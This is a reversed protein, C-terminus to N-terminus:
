GGPQTPAPPPATCYNWNGTDPNRNICVNTPGGNGIGNTHPVNNALFWDTSTINNSSFEARVLGQPVPFQRGASFDHGVGLITKEREATIMMRWWIPAAGTIGSITRMTDSEDKNGVWVGGTYDMTYGMTWDDALNDTTGTKAAAPFVIGPKNSYCASQSGQVFNGQSDYTDSFEHNPNGNWYLYLPSCRGFGFGLRIKDPPPVRAQNDSLVSTLLYAVQPSIVQVGRPPSYRYIENGQGDLIYDIGNFPVRRGYNAMTAYAQVMDIPHVGLSGIAMALGPTGNYNTIGLRQMMRLVNPIGDFDLTKVAPINLSNQLAVRITTEGFYNPAEADLPKYNGTPGGPDPFVTPIDNITMAPFWGQEFATSYDFLKFSSGPQRFGETAVDFKNNVEKGYPGYNPTYTAPHYVGKKDFYPKHFSCRTPTQTAYYDWSGLLVRLDGTSQEALVAASESANDTFLYTGYDTKENCFLHDAMIQQVEEQLPLDLTTYVKLGSRAAKLVGQPANPDIQGSIVMNNLENIVFDVFHPALNLTDEPPPPKIFGPSNSEKWAADSQKQTIYGQKVMAALVQQQRDLARKLGVSNLPNYGVPNQPLGALFSAQALDLHHAGAEGTKIDDKLGFYQFAASDIGYIDPGYPSTDLYLTIIQQKTYLGSKTMGYALIAERIKRDFTQASDLVTQKILQQTITSAGQLDQSHNHQIYDQYAASLIRQYDVGDNHWFDKDEIAVTANIMTLPMQEFPISHKVGNTNAQYILTGYRDYIQVSDSNTVQNQLAELTPLMSQYYAYAAEAISGLTGLVLAIFTGITFLVVRQRSRSKEEQRRRQTRLVYLTYRKRRHRLRHRDQLARPDPPPTYPIPLAEDSATSEPPVEPPPPPTNGNTTPEGEPPPLPEQPQQEDSM